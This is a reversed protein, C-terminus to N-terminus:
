KTANKKALDEVMAVIMNVFDYIGYGLFFIGFVALTIAVATLTANQKSFKRALLMYIVPPIIFCLPALILAGDLAMVTDISGCPVAVLAVLVGVAVRAINEFMPGYSEKTTSPRFQVLIEKLCDVIEILYVPCISITTLALALFVLTTMFKEFPNTRDIYINPFIDNGSEKEFFELAGPTGAGIVAYLLHMVFMAVYAVGIVAPYRSKTKSETYLRSACFYNVFSFGMTFFVELTYGFKTPDDDSPNPNLAAKPFAQTLQSVDIAGMWLPSVVTYLTAFFVSAVGLYNLWTLESLQKGAVWSLM